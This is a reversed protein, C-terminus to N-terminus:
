ASCRFLPQQSAWGRSACRSARACRHPTSARRWQEYDFACFHVSDAPPPSANAAPPPSLLRNPDKEDEAAGAVSGIVATVEYGCSVGELDGAYRGEVYFDQSEDAEMDSLTTTGIFDGDVNGIVRIYRLDIHATITGSIAITYVSGTQGVVECSTNSVTWADTQALARSFTLRQGPADGERGPDADTQAWAPSVTLALLVAFVPTILRVSRRHPRELRPATTSTPTTAPPRGYPITATPSTARCPETHARPSSCSSSSAEKGLAQQSSSGTAGSKLDQGAEPRSAASRCSPPAMVSILFSEAKSM